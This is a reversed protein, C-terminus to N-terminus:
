LLGDNLYRRIYVISLWLPVVANGNLIYWNESFSWAHCAQWLSIYDYRWLARFIRNKMDFRKPIVFVLSRQHVPIGVVIPYIHVFSAQVCNDCQLLNYKVTYMITFLSSLPFAQALSVSTEQKSKIGYALFLLRCQHQM